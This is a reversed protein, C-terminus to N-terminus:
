DASHGPKPLHGRYFGIMQHMAQSLGTCQRGCNATWLNSMRRNWAFGDNQPSPRSSSRMCVRPTRRRLFGTAKLVQGIQSCMAPPLHCPHHSIVPTTTTTTTTPPLTRSNNIHPFTRLVIPSSLTTRSEFECAVLVSFPIGKQVLLLHLEYLKWSGNTCFPLHLKVIAL